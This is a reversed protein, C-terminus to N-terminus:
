NPLQIIPSRYQEESTDAVIEDLWSKNNLYTEPDKRFKKNPQSVKYLPIHAMINERDIDKLLIWKRELKIKDGVKKEYKDWFESFSINLEKLTNYTPVQHQSSPVKSPKVTQYTDYNCITIMTYKSTTFVSIMADAQLQSLFSRVAGRDWKWESGLKEQSTLIQGRNVQILDYGIPEKESDHCAMFLLDLWAEYKTRKRKKEYLWHGKISRYVLLYGSKKNEEYDSFLSPTNSM